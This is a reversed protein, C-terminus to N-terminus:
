PVAKHQDNLALVAYRQRSLSDHDNLYHSVDLEPQYDSALLTIAKTSLKKDWKALETEVTKMANKIYM